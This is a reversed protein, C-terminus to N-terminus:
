FKRKKRQLNLAFRHAEDRIRQLLFLAQSERPLSIANKKRPLFIKEEKKALAVLYINQMKFKKIIELIAFLQGKGGDILMLDPKEKFADDKELANLRKLRRLLMERLAACDDANTKSKIIFRRYHNKKPKGQEFVVMAGVTHTGGLHSVDYCEIRQPMVKLGLEKKLMILAELAKLQKQRWFFESDRLQANANKLALTVLKKKAGKRPIELLVTKQEEKFNQKLCEAINKNAGVSFPLIIKDPLDFSKQYYQLILEKLIGEKEEGSVQELVFQKSDLLKGERVVLLEGVAIEKGIALAFVDLNEKRKLVVHQKTVVDELAKLTDRILAAQEYQEALSYKHMKQKLEQILSDSFGNLFRLCQLINKQYKEKSVFGVCPASCLKIHYDLCPRQRKTSIQFLTSNCTRYKFIKRLIRLTTQINKASVYPGLYSTKKISLNRTPFIRPYEEERTIRVYVYKKDDRLKINYKPRHKKILNQELIFAETENRVLIYELDNLYKKLELTKGLDDKKSHMYFSLRKRLNISKGIYIIKGKKDKLLYVGPEQPVQTAKNIIKIQGQKM